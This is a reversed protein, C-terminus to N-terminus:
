LTAFLDSFTKFLLAIVGRHVLQLSQSSRPWHRCWFNQMRPSCGLPGPPRFDWTPDLPSAGTLTQPVFDGLLQLLKCVNNVYKSQLFSLFKYIECLEGGSDQGTHKVTPSPVLRCGRLGHRTDDSSPTTLSHTLIYPKVDSEVCWPTTLAWGPNDPISEACPLFSLFIEDGPFLRALFVNHIGHVTSFVLSSTHVM